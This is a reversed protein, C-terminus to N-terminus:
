GPVLEHMMGILEKLPLPKCAFANAGSALAEQTINPADVNTFVLVPTTDHAEGRLWQLFALGDMVPMMRDLRILDPRLQQLFSRAVKGNEATRCDYSRRGLGMKLLMRITADDDVILVRTKQSERWGGSNGGLSGESWGHAPMWPEVTSPPEAALPPEAQWGSPLSHPEPSSTGPSGVAPHVRNPEEPQPDCPTERAEPTSSVPLPKESLWGTKLLHNPLEHILITKKPPAEPVAQSCPQAPMTSPEQAAAPEQAIPAEESETM